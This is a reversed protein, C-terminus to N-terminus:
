SQITNGCAPYIHVRVSVICAHSLVKIRLGLEQELSIVCSAVVDFALLTLKSLVHAAQVQYQMNNQM